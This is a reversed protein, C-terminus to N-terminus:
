EPPSEPLACKPCTGCEEVCANYEACCWFFNPSGGSLCPAYLDYCARACTGNCSVAESKGMNAFVLLGVMILLAFVRFTLHRM